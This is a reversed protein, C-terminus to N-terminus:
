FCSFHNNLESFQFVRKTQIKEDPNSPDVFAIPLICIQSFKELKQLIRIKTLIIENTSQNKLSLILNDKSLSYSFNQVVCSIIQNETSVKWKEFEFCHYKPGGVSVMIKEIEYGHPFYKLDFPTEIKERSSVYLIEKGKQFNNLDSWWMKLYSFIQHNLDMKLKEQDDQSLPSSVQNEFFALLKHRQILEINNINIQEDLNQLEKKFKMIKEDNKSEVGLRKFNNIENEMLSNINQRQQDDEKLKNEISIITKTFELKENHNKAEELKNLMTKIENFIKSVFIKEYMYKANQDRFPLNQPIQSPPNLCISNKVDVHTTNHQSDPLLTKEDM